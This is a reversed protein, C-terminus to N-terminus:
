KFNIQDLHFPFQFFSQHPEDSGILLDIVTDIISDFNNDALHGLCVVIFLCYREQFHSSRLELFLMVVFNFLDSHVLLIDSFIKYSEKFEVGISDKAKHASIWLIFSQVVQSFDPFFSDWNQM